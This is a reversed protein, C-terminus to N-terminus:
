NIWEKVVWEACRAAENFSPHSFLKKTKQWVHFPQVLQSAALQMLGSRVRSKKEFLPLTFVGVRAGATLAEFVMSVSDPTVWVQGCRNFENLIWDRTTQEFPVVTLSPLSHGLGGRQSLPFHVPVSKRLSGLFEPPTRRSTTLTFHVNPTELMITKIQTVLSENNWKFHNSCGGILILGLGLQLQKSPRVENLVGKTVFVNARKPPDDHEPIVCLDFLFIPLTPKMLVITRGGHSRKAALLSLHTKHGAGILLCPRPLNQSGAGFSGWLWHWFAQVMSLPCISCVSLPVKKQLAAILGAVQSEHGPKGDQFYWVVIQKM